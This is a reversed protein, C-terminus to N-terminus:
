NLAPSHIGFQSHSIRRVRGVRRQSLLTFAAAVLLVILARGGYARHGGWFSLVIGVSTFVIGVLANAVAANHPRGTSSDRDRYYRILVLVHYALAVGIASWGCGCGFDAVRAEPDTSLRQHLGPLSPLWERGLLQLFTNRNIGAQGERMDVGYDRYAVGGGHRYRPAVSAM